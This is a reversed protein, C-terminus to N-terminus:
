GPQIVDQGVAVGSPVAPSSSPEQNAYREQVYSYIIPARQAGIWQIAQLGEVGRELIDQATVIGARRMATAVAPTVGPLTQLDLRAARIAKEQVPLVGALDVPQPTPSPPVAAVQAPRAQPAAVVPMPPPTVKNEEKPVSAIAAQRFWHPYLKIDERHVLFRDGSARYGYSRRPNGGGYVPHSGKNPHTYEVLVLDNNELKGGMQRSAQVSQAQAVGNGSKDKGCNCPMDAMREKKDGIYKLLNDWDALGIERRSGTHFRYVMLPEAIRAFCKGSWALRYWLDVDEWSKMQEDFGGVSDFWSKPLLTTVNNWIYPPNQPQAKARECDFDGSQYRILAEKKRTNYAVINHQLDPALRSTDEVIALGMYDTYVAKGNAQWSDLMKQMCDPHLHDDADLFLLFPGRAQRAGLNRAFGAGRQKGLVQTRDESIGWGTHSRVYPYAKMMYEAEPTPGTTTFPAYDWVVIVEWNRFTQAELSDLANFLLGAHEPSGVPIVVSIVPEDYQRVPHSPNDRPKVLSAFPHKGDKVFPHWSLWEPEKYNPDGTVQGSMWSYVFFSSMAQDYQEQSVGHGVMEMMTPARKMEKALKHYLGLFESFPAALKARWGYAGARLFFEADEAGAGTPAYRQRYGGLREWMDRRFMCCTPIQNQKLLHKDFQWDSPWPSIGTSGDPKIWRLGTYTIALGRSGLLEDLCTRLYNPEIADDADLCVIFTSSSAGIGHNRAIAVGQNPQRIYRIYGSNEGFGREVLQQYDHGLNPESGDDVVIIEDPRRSQNLSSQIARELESTPKNYVPIVVSVTAPEPKAVERYLDAIQKCVDQWRYARAMERGNEGLVVRHELCYRLGEAMDGLDGPRYLYGNVGHKVLNTANGHKASLVPVGSAMAELVGLAFTEKTTSIYCAATQVKRKMEEPKLLGTVVINQVPPGDPAFTSLFVEDPFKKALTSLFDPDCVDLKARNKAYGIIHGECPANSQWEDWEVGHGIVRPSLRMDRQLPEACWPSPVTVARACRLAEVIRANAEYEWPPAPYDATWYMGHLHAVDCDGATMGAHVAKVDYQEADPAVLEIGHEPLHKFYARIVTAIGSIDHEIQSLHPLMKVKIM